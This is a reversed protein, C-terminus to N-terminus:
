QITPSSIRAHGQLQHFVSLISGRQKRQKNDRNNKKESDKKNRIVSDPKKEISSLKCETSRRRDRNINRRRISWNQMVDIFNRYSHWILM